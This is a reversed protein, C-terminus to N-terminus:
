QQGKMMAFVNAHDERPFELGGRGIVRMNDRYGIRVGFNELIGLTTGDYANCPHAVVNKNQRRSWRVNIIRRLVALEKAEGFDVCYAPVELPRGRPSEKVTHRNAM